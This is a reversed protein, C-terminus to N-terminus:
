KEAVFLLRDSRPGPAREGYNGFCEVNQYGAHELMDRVEPVTYARQIHTEHFHRDTQTNADRVWFDMEVRCLRTERDWHAHWDHRVPGWAQAQTFLDHSLAYMSNMDFALVGGPATHAYLRVFARQLDDPDLIYNLSDFLSVVLDFTEGHLDLHAANQVHYTSGETRSAAKTIAQSKTRAVNIMAESLDFGVVPRYGRLWLLETVLGTGCACDLASTPRKGRLRVAKEIRSLWLDHPVGDMLTDYIGAVEGYQHATPLPDPVASLPTDDQQSRASLGPSAPRFLSM